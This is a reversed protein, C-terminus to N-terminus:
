DNTVSEPWYESWVQNDDVFHVVNKDMIGRQNTYYGYYPDSDEKSRSVVVGSNTLEKSETDLDFLFLGNYDWDYSTWNEYEAVLTEYISMPIVFRYHNEETQLISFAKHNNLIETSSGPKGFVFDKSVVPSSPDSLDFMVLKVGEQRTFGFQNEQTNKGIGLLINENIPHLYNSFGPLEVSGMIYPDLPNSLDIAYLPDTRFSTAIYLRKGSFRVADVSERPKGIAEPHDDNPLQAVIDLSGERNDGNLMYLHHTNNMNDTTVVGLYDGTEGFHFSRNQWGINGPVQGSGIFQTGEDVFAFQHVRVKEGGNRYDYIQKILYLNKTTAYIEEHYGAVCVSKINTPDNLDITSITVLTPQFNDEVFDPVYCDSPKVIPKSADNNVKIKPLLESIDLKDVIQKNRTDNITGSEAYPYYNEFYPTFRTVLYLQNEVVRSSVIEGDIQLTNEEKAQAPDNIDLFHLVTRSHYYSWYSKGEYLDNTPLYGTAIALLSRNQSESDQNIYLGNIQTNPISLKVSTLAETFPPTDFTKVIKIKSYPEEYITDAKDNQVGSDAVSVDEMAADDIMVAPEPFGRDIWCCPINNREAIYIYDGDYKVIDAEDVGSEQTNTESYSKGGTSESNISDSAAEPASSNGAVPDGMNINEDYSLTDSGRLSRKLYNELLESDQNPVLRNSGVFPNNQSDSSGCATIFTACFFVTTLLSAVRNNHRNLSKM